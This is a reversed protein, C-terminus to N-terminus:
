RWAIGPAVKVRYSVLGTREVVIGSLWIKQGRYDKIMVSQGSQLVRTNSPRMSSMKQQQNKVRESTNPRLLPRLLDFISMLRRGLFLMAHTENTTAHPTSRYTFIFKSLRTQISGCDKKSSKMATKFSQVFREAQGNTSPHLPASTTHKVGNSLIFQRFHESTFQLGNDLHVHKPLGNRAFIARLVEVTKEATTSKMMIVKAM